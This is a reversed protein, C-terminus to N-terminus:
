LGLINEIFECAESRTPIVATGLIESLQNPSIDDLFVEGDARLATQPVLIADGLKKGKLQEIIDTATLLGAVTITDGFFNNKIKYVTINLGDFKKM